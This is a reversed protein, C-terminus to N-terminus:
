LRFAVANTRPSQLYWHLSDIFPSEDASNITYKAIFDLGWLIHLLKGGGWNENQQQLCVAVYLCFFLISLLFHM